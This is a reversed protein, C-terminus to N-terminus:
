LGLFYLRHKADCQQKDHPIGTLSNAKPHNLLFGNIFEHAKVVFVIARTRIIWYVAFEIAEKDQSIHLGQCPCYLM